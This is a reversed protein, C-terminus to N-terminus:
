PPDDRGIKIPRKPGIYDGGGCVCFKVYSMTIHKLKRLRKFARVQPRYLAACGFRTLNVLETM